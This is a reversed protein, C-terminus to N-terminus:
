RLKLPWCHQPWQPTIPVSWLWYAYLVSHVMQPKTYPVFPDSICSLSHGSHWFPAGPILYQLIILLQSWEFDTFLSRYRFRSIDMMAFRLRFSVGASFASFFRRCFSYMVMKML